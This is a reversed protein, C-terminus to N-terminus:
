LAKKIAEGAVPAKEIIDKIKPSSTIKLFLVLLITAPIFKVIPVIEAIFTLAYPILRKVIQKQAKNSGGLFLIIYLPITIAIPIILWDFLLGLPIGVATAKIMLSFPDAVLDKLTAFLMAAAFVLNSMGKDESETKSGLVGGAAKAARGGKKLAKGGAKLGKGATQGATRGTRAGAAAGTRAGAIAGPIAGVGGAVAGAIGGSIAGGVAGIGAGAAQGAMPAVSGAAQAATGAAQMKRGANEIKGEGREERAERKQQNLVRSLYQQSDPGVENGFAGVLNEARAEAM